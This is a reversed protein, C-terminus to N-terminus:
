FDAFVVLNGRSHKAMAIHYMLVKYIRHYIIPNVSVIVNVMVLEVGTMLVAVTM